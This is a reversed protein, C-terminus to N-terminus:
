AASTNAHAAVYEIGRCYRYWLEPAQTVQVGFGASLENKAQREATNMSWAVIGQLRVEGEPLSTIVELKRGVHELQQTPVFIGMSSIDATCAIHEVHTRDQYRVRLRCSFRPTRRKNVM